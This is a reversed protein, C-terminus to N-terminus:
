PRPGAKTPSVMRYTRRNDGGAAENGEQGLRSKEVGHQTQRHAVLSGKAVEKWCGMCIM